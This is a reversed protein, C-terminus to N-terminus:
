TEGEAKSILFGLNCPRSLLFQQFVAKIKFFAGALVVIGNYNWTESEYDQHFEPTGGTTPRLLEAFKPSPAGSIPGFTKPEAL